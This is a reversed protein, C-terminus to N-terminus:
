VQESHRQEGRDRNCGPRFYRDMESRAGDQTPGRSRLACFHQPPGPGPLQGLHSTAPPALRGWRQQGQRERQVRAEEAWPCTPALLSGLLARAPLRCCPGAAAPSPPCGGQFPHANSQSHPAGGLGWERGTLSVSPSGLSMRLALERPCSGSRRLRARPLSTVTILLLLLSAQGTPGPPLLPPLCLGPSPPWPASDAALGQAQGAQALPGREPFGHRALM